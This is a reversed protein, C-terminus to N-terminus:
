QPPPTKFWNIALDVYYKGNKGVEAPIQFKLFTTLFTLVEVRKGTRRINGDDKRRGKDKIKREKERMRIWCNFEGSCQGVGNYLGYCFFGRIGRQMWGSICFGSSKIISRWVENAKILISILIRESNQLGTVPSPWPLGPYNEPKRPTMPSTATSKLPTLFTVWPSKRRYASESGAGILLQRIITSKPSSHILNPAKIWHVM